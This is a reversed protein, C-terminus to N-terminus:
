WCENKISGDRYTEEYPEPTDENTRDAWARERLIANPPATVPQSGVPKQEVSPTKIKDEQRM